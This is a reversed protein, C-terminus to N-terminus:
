ITIKRILGDQGKTLIGSTGKDKTNDKKDELHKYPIVEDIYEIDGYTIKDDGKDKPMDQEVGYKDTTTKPDSQTNPQTKTTTKNNTEESIIPTIEAIKVSKEEKNYISPKIVDNEQTTEDIDQTLIDINKQVNTKDTDDTLTSEGLSCSTLLLCAIFLKLIKNMLDGGREGFM